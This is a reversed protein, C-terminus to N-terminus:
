GECAFACPLNVPECPGEEGGAGARGPLMGGPPWGWRLHTKM